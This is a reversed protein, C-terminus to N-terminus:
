GCTMTNLGALFLCPPWISMATITHTTFVM